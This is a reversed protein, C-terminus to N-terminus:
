GLSGDISAYESHMLVWLVLLAELQFLQEDSM